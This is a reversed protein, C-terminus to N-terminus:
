VLAKEKGSSDVMTVKQTIDMDLNKILHGAGSGLDVVHPFRRKIDQAICASYSYTDLRLGVLCPVSALQTANL